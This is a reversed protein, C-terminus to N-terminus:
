SKGRLCYAVCSVSRDSSSALSDDGGLLSRELRRGGVQWGMGRLAGTEQSGEGESRHRQGSGM